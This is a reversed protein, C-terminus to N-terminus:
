LENLWHLAQLGRELVQPQGTANGSLILAHALNANDYSLRQGFWCWDPKANSAFLEILRGTLMERTQNVLSDGSLRQLYEHIGIVGYAWARPSTFDSLTPVDQALLQGGTM